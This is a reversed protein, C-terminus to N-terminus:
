KPACAAPKTTVALKGAPFNTVQAAGLYAGALDGPKFTATNGAPCLVVVEIRDGVKVPLNGREFSKDGISFKNVKKLAVLAQDIDAGPSETATTKDATGAAAASAAKEAAAKDAAVKAAAAAKAAAATKAAATAAAASAAASAAAAAPTPGVIDVEVRVSQRTASSDTRFSHSLRLRTSLM